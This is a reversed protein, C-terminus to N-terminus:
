FILSGLEVCIWAVPSAVLEMGAGFSSGADASMRLSCTTVSKFWSRFSYVTRLRERQAGLALADTVQARGRSKRLDRWPFMQRGRTHQQGDSRKLARRVRLVILMVAEFEV